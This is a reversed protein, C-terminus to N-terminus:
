VQHKLFHQINLQQHHRLRRLGVHLQRLHQLVKLQFLM